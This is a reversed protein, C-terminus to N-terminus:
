AQLELLFPNAVRERGITTVPGHGPLVHTDDPMPLIKEAMSAMLQEHSGGPLDTRGISGAFLHDGSFLVREGEVELLFCVSGKTHGPTHIATFTMGAGSVQQGDDLGLVLEPPRLDLGEAALYQGFGGSTGAPDLLMHRDDDHIHVPVDHDQAHVVTGVGGVHDVHGHTNLLAVLRLGDEALQELIASPDPPADVLVCEGGPGSASAIWANTQAIWLPLGKIFM